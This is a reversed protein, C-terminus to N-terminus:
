QCGEGGGGAGGDVEVGLGDGALHFDDAFAFGAWGDDGVRVGVGGEALFEAGDFVDALEGGVVEGEGAVGAVAAVCVEAAVVDDPDEVGGLFEGEFGFGPAVGEEAIEVVAAVEFFFVGEGEDLLEAFLSVVDVAAADGGVGGEAPEVIGDEVGKNSVGIGVEGFEEEVFEGVAAEEAAALGHEVFGHGVGDGLFADFAPEGVLAAGGFEFVVFCAEDAAHLEILLDVDGAFAEVGEILGGDGIGFFAAAFCGDEGVEFGAEEVEAALPASAAEFGPDVAVEVVGVEDGGEGVVLVDGGEFGEEGFAVAVEFLEEAFGFM